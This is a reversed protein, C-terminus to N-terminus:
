DKANEEGFKIIQITFDGTLNADIKESPYHGLLKHADMRATQRIKWLIKGNAKAELEAKLKKALYEDTVGQKKLSAAIGQEKLDAAREERTM